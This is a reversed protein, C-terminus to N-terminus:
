VTWRARSQRNEDAIGLSTHRGDASFQAANLAQGLIPLVNCGTIVVSTPLSMPYHLREIPTATQSEHDAIGEGPQTSLWNMFFGYPGHVMIIPVPMVRVIGFAAV